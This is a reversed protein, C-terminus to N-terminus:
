KEQFRSFALLEIVRSKGLELILKLISKYYLNQPIERKLKYTDNFFLKVGRAIFVKPDYIDKGSELNLYSISNYTRCLEILREYGKLGSPNGYSSTCKLSSSINLEKCVITVCLINFESVSMDYTLNKDIRNLIYRVDNYGPASHSNELLINQLIKLQNKIDILFHENIKSNQSLNKVKLSFIDNSETFQNRTIWSKKRMNVDDLFLHTVSQHILSFYGINPFFYPQNISLM